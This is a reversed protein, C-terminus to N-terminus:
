LPGLVKSRTDHNYLVQMHASAWRRDKLPYALKISGYYKYNLDMITPLLPQALMDTPYALGVM